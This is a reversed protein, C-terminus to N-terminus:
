YSDPPHCDGELNTRKRHRNRVQLIADVKSACVVSDTRNILSLIARWSHVHVDRSYISQTCLAQSTVISYCVDKQGASFAKLSKPIDHLVQFVNDLVTCVPSFLDAEEGPHGTRQIRSLQSSQHSRRQRNESGRVYMAGMANTCGFCYCYAIVGASCTLMLMSYSRRCQLMNAHASPGTLCRCFLVARHSSQTPSQGKESRRNGACCVIKRQQEEPVHALKTLSPKHLASTRAPLFVTPCIRPSM